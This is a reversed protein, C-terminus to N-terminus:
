LHRGPSRSPALGENAGPGHLAGHGDGPRNIFYYLRKSHPAEAGSQGKAEADSGGASDPTGLSPEEPASLPASDGRELDVQGFDHIIVIHPHNLKALTQAERTFREEFAPDQSLQPPLIELAVVRDLQPQRARYVAGMGGAGILEVIDLQPFYDALEEPSLPVFRAADPPPTTPAGAPSGSAGESQSVLGAEMLCKPCIGAPANAPLNAGCKPCTRPPTM